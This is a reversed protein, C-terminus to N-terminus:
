LTVTVTKVEGTNYKVMIFYERGPREDGFDIGWSRQMLATGIVTRELRGGMHEVRGTPYLGMAKLFNMSQINCPFPLSTM